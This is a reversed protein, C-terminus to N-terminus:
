PYLFQDSILLSMLLSMHRVSAQAQLTQKPSMVLQSGCSRVQHSCAQVLSNHKANETTSSDGIQQQLLWAMHEEVAGVNVAFPSSCPCDAHARQSRLQGSVAGCAALGPMDGELVAICGSTAAKTDEALVQTDSGAAFVADFAASANIVEASRDLTAAGGTRWRDLQDLMSHLIVAVSQQEPLVTDLVRHYYGLELGSLDCAELKYSTHSQQWKAYAHFCTKLLHLARQVEKAGEVHPSVAEHDPSAGSEVEQLREPQIEIDLLALQCSVDGAGSAAKRVQLQQFIHESVEAHTQEGDPASGARHLYIMSCLPVGAKVAECYQQQSVAAEKVWYVQTYCWPLDMEAQAQTLATEASLLTQEAASRPGAGDMDTTDSSGKQMTENEVTGVKDTAMRIQELGSRVVQM